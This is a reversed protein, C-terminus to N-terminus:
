KFSWLFPIKKQKAERWGAEFLHCDKVRFYRSIFTRPKPNRFRAKYPSAKKMRRFTRMAVYNEGFKANTLCKVNRSQRM